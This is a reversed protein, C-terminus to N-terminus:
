HIRLTYPLIAYQGHPDQLLSLRKAEREFDRLIGMTGKHGLNPRVIGANVLFESIKEELTMPRPRETIEFADGIGALDAARQVAAMLGGTEDALGLRIASAGSWVRGKALGYAEEMGLKRNDAVSGVFENYFDTALARLQRMEEPTKARGISFTGAFPHTEV